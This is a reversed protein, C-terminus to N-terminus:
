RGKGKIVYSISNLMQATDVLPTMDGAGAAKRSPHAAQRGAVTRPSLQPQIGAVIRVKTASVANMGARHFNQMMESDEGRLAAEAARKIYPLWLHQSDAVGPRLWPRPPVNNIPSGNEHIYGLTANGITDPDRPEQPNKAGQGKEDLHPHDDDSPIGVLIEISTLEKLNHSYEATRDVEITINEEHRPAQGGGKKVAM